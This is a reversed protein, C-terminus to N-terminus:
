GNRGYYKFNSNQLEPINNKIENEMRQQNEFSFEISHDINVVLERNDDYQVRVQLVGYLGFDDIIGMIDKEIRMLAENDKLDFDRTANSPYYTKSSFIM